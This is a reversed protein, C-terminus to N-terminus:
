RSTVVLNLLRVPFATASADGRMEIKVWVDKSKEATVAQLVSPGSKATTEASAWTIGNNSVSIKASGRLAADT